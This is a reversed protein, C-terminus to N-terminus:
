RAGPPDDGLRHATTAGRLRCLTGGRWQGAPVSRCRGAGPGAQHLVSEPHCCLRRPRAPGSWRWPCRAAHAAAAPVGHWRLVQPDRHLASRPRPHPERVGAPATWRRWRRLRGAPPRPPAVACRAHCAPGAPCGRGRCGRGAACASAAPAVAAADRDLAPRAAPAGAPVGPVRRWPRDPSRRARRVGARSSSLWIASTPAWQSPSSSTSGCNSCRM